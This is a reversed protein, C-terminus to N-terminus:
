IQGAIRKSGAIKKFDIANPGINLSIQLSSAIRNARDIFLDAIAGECNDEVASRFLALWHEFHAPELGLNRHMVHPQGTYRGTRMTVSSWFDIMTKIHADWRNSLRQEFIAGLVADERVRGYFDRVLREIIAESPVQVPAVIAMNGEIM